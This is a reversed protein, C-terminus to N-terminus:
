SNLKVYNLDCKNLNIKSASGNVLLPPSSVPTGPSVGRAVLKLFHWMSFGLSQLGLRSEFVCLLMPPLSPFCTSVTVGHTAGHDTTIMFVLSCNLVSQKQQRQHHHSSPPLVTMTTHGNADCLRRGGRHLLSPTIHITHFINLFQVKNQGVAAAAAAAAATATATTTTISNQYHYQHYHHLQPPPTAHHLLPPITTHNHPPSPQTRSLTRGAVPAQQCRPPRHGGTSSM